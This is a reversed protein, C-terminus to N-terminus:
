FTVWSLKAKATKIHHLADLVLGFDLAPSVPVDRGQELKRARIRLQDYMMTFARFNLLITGVTPTLFM